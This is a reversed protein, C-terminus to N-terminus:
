TGPPSFINFTLDLTFSPDGQIVEPFTPEGIYGVLQQTMGSIAVLWAAWVQVPDPNTVRWFGEVNLYAYGSSLFGQQLIQAPSAVYGEWTADVLTALAPPLVQPADALHIEFYGAASGDLLNQLLSM